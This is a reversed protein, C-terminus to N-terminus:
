ALVYKQAADPLDSFERAGSIDETWGEFEEYVPVAAAFAAQDQPLDQYRVGDVDYAVCVPIKEFGTLVDLKTLVFDTLGNVRAAYRAIVADYWGCRRPRKTNVGYEHGIERLKEGVSDLLETP